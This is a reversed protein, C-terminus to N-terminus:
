KRSMVILRYEHAQAFTESRRTRRALKDIARGLVLELVRARMPYAQRLAARLRQVFPAVKENKLYEHIVFTPIIADTVDEDRLMEFRGQRAVADLFSAHTGRTADEDGPAYGGRRFYDFIVVGRDSYRAAQALAPELEVYHFSEAFLCLDFRDGAAFDEFRSDIVPTGRPLKARAMDNMHASPSVCTVDFGAEILNRANAGTGSGVDLIRRVDGPVDRVTDLLKEFYAHQAAGLAHASPVEPPGDPFYGYHAYGHGFVVESVLAAGELEVAKSIM